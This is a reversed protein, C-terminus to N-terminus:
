QLHFLTCLVAQRNKIPRAPLGRVFCRRRMTNIIGPPLTAVIKRRFAM